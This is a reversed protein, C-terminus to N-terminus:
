EPPGSFALLADLDLDAKLLDRRMRSHLREAGRQARHLVFRRLQAEFRPGTRWAQRLLWAGLAGSHREYMEDELSAIAEYTGPDGQRGCRGFLQRDIRRADHRETAIV